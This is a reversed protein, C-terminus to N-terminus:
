ATQNLIDVDSQKTNSFYRVRHGINKITEYWYPIKPAANSRTDSENYVNTNVEREM